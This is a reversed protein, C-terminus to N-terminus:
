AAEAGGDPHASLVSSDLFLWVPGDRPAAELLAETRVASSDACINRALGISRRFSAMRLGAYGLGPAPHWRRAPPRAAAPLGGSEWARVRGGQQQDILIAQDLRGETTLDGIDL